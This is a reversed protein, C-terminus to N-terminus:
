ELNEMPAVFVAFDRFPLRRLSDVSANKGVFLRSNYKCVSRIIHWADWTGLFDHKPKVGEEFSEPRAFPSLSGEVEEGDQDPHYMMPLQILVQTYHSIALAEQIAYAYQTFGEGYSNGYSIKPGPIVVNGLGCFAAYSIELELVQRSISYVVPDPSSLDIWPSAYGVLQSIIDGPTLPTDAPSLGPLTPLESNAGGEDKLNTLHNSLLALVRSHFLPTTIPTTLM